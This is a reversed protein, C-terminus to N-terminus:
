ACVTQACSGKLLGTEPQAQLTERAPIDWVTNQGALRILFGRPANRLRGPWRAVMRHMMNASHLDANTHEAGILAHRSKNEIKGVLESMTKGESQGM